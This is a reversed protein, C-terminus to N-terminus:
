VRAWTIVSTRLEGDAWYPPSSLILLNDKFEAARERIKGVLNPFFSIEVHHTVLDAKVEYKGAYSLYDAAAALEEPTAKAPDDTAFNPRNISMIAVSMFGDASYMIYGEADRGNPYYVKGDSTREKYAVLRWTGVLKNQISMNNLLRRKGIM